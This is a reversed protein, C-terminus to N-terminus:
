CGLDSVRSVHRSLRPPVNEPGAPGGKIGHNLRHHSQLVIFPRIGASPRPQVKVTHHFHIGGDHGRIQSASSNGGDSIDLVRDLHGSIDHLAGM